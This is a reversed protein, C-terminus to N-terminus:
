RRKGRSPSKGRRDNEDTKKEGLSHLATRFFGFIEVGGAATTSDRGSGNKAKRVKQIRRAEIVATSDKGPSELVTGEPPRTKADRAGKHQKRITIEINGRAHSRNRGDTKRGPFYEPGDIEDAEIEVDSAEHDPKRRLITM